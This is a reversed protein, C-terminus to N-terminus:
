ILNNNNNNNDNNFNNNNLNKNNIKEILDSYNNRIVITDSILEHLILYLCPVVILTVITGFIMGGIIVAAIPVKYEQFEGKELILPVAGMIMCLTTMIIPRLRNICADIIVEDIMKEDKNNQIYDVLMIGHKTILGILTIIGVIVIQNINIKLLLLMFLSGIASFPVVALISLPIIFNEFLAALILYILLIALGMIYFMKNFVNIKDEEENSLSVNAAGKHINNFQVLAKKVDVISAGDNLHLYLPIGLIGKIRVKKREKKSTSIKVFHKLPIKTSENQDKSNKINSQVTFNLIENIKDMIDECYINYFIRNLKKSASKRIFKQEHMSNLAKIVVQPSVGYRACVDLKITLEYISKTRVDEFTHLKVLDSLPEFSHFLDKYKHMTELSDDYVQLFLEVVKSTSDSKGPLMYIDSPMSNSIKIISDTINQASRKRQKHPVLRVCMLENIKNYQSLSYQISSISDMIESNVIKYYIDLLKNDTYEINLDNEQRNSIAIYVTGKDVNIEEEFTMIKLTATLLIFLFSLLILFYTYRNQLFHSLISIYKREFRSYLSKKSVVTKEIKEVNYIINFLMPTLTISVFGSILVSVTIAIAFDFFKKIVNDQILFIPTYVIALTITMSIIASIISSTGELIAEKRNVGSEMKHYINEVVIIADDVVLGVALVIGFLSYVNISVNLFKMIIFIPIISCPIAVSPILSLRLSRLFLYIILLVLFCAEIISKYVGHIGNEVFVSKDEFVSCIIDNAECFLAFDKYVERIKGCVEILNAEEKKMIEMKVNEMGNVRSITKDDGGSTINAIESLRIVANNDTLIPYNVLGSVNYSIDCDIDVSIRTNGVPIDCSTGRLGISEMARHLTDISVNYLLMDHPRLAIITDGTTNDANHSFRVTSVGSISDFLYKLKSAYFVIENPSKTKSTLVINFIYGTESVYPHVRIICNEPLNQKAEQIASNVKIFNDSPNTDKSFAIDIQSSSSTIKNVLNEVGAISLLANEVPIGVSNEVGEISSSYNVDISYKNYVIQPEDEVPLMSYGVGGVLMMIIYIVSTFVPKTVFFNVLKKNM